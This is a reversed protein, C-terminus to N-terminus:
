KAEPAYHNDTIAPLTSFMFTYYYHPGSRRTPQVELRSGNEESKFQGRATLAFIAAVRHSGHTGICLVAYYLM